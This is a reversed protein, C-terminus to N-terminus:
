GCKLSSYHKKWIAKLLLYREPALVKKSRSNSSPLIRQSCSWIYLAVRRNTQCLPFRLKAKFITNFKESAVNVKRETNQRGRTISNNHPSMKDVSTTYKVLLLSCESHQILNIVIIIIHHM